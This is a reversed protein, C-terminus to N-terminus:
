FAELPYDDSFEPIFCERTYEGNAKRVCKAWNEDERALQELFATGRDSMVKDIFNQPLTVHYKLVYKWTDRPWMYEGDTKWSVGAMEMNKFPHQYLCSFYFCDKTTQLYAIVKEPVVYDPDVHDYICEDGGCIEEYPMLNILEDM